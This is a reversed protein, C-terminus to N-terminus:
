GVLIFFIFWSLSERYCFTCVFFLSFSLSFLCYRPYHPLWFYRNRDKAFSDASSLPPFFCNEEGHERSFIDFFTVFSTFKTDALYNNGILQSYNRFFISFSLSLSLSFLLRFTLEAITEIPPVLYISGSSGRSKRIGRKKTKGSLQQQIAGAEALRSEGADSATRRPSTWCGIGAVVPSVASLYCITRRSSHAHEAM